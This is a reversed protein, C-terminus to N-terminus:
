SYGSLANVRKGKLLARGVEWRERKREKEKREGRKKRREGKKDRRKQGWHGTEGRGEGKGM